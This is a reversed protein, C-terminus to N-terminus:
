RFQVLESNNTKQIYIRKANETESILSESPYIRLIPLTEDSVGQEISKIRQGFTFINEQTEVKGTVEALKRIIQDITKTKPLEKNAPIKEILGQKM